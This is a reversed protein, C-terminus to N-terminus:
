WNAVNSVKKKQLVFCFVVLSIYFINAFFMSYMVSSLNNVELFLFFLYLVILVIDRALRSFFVLWNRKQSILYQVFVNCVSIVISTGCLLYIVTGVEYYEAGYLGIFYKFFLMLFASVLLTAFLNSYIALAITNAKGSSLYSLVVNKMVGPVFLVITMIQITLSYLGVEKFGSNFTIIVIILWGTFYQLTEQLMVPFSEKIIILIDKVRVEGFNCRVETKLFLTFFFVKLFYFVCLAVIAGTVDWLWIFFLSISFYLFASIFNVKALVDFRKVGCTVGELTSSITVLIISFFVLYLVKNVGVGGFFFFYFVSLLTLSFSILTGILIFSSINRESIDSQGAVHRLVVINVGFTSIVALLMLTSKSFEFFGFNESGLFRALIIILSFTVIATSVSSILSWLSDTLFKRSM